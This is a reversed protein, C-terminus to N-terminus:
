KYHLASLPTIPSPGWGHKRSKACPPSTVKPRWRLFFLNCHHSVIQMNKADHWMSKAAFQLPSNPWTIWNMM